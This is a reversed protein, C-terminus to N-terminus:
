KSNDINMSVGTGKCEHCRNKWKDNREGTGNCSSCNKINEREKYRELETEWESSTIGLYSSIIDKLNYYNSKEEKSYNTWWATKWEFLIKNELEFKILEKMFSRKDVWTERKM